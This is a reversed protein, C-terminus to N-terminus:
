LFILSTFILLDIAYILLHALSTSLELSLGAKAFYTLWRITLAHKLLRAAYFDPWELNTKNSLYAQKM